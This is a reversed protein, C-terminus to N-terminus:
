SNLSYKISGCQTCGNSMSSPCVKITPTFVSSLRNSIPAGINCLWCYPWIKKEYTSLGRSKPGLSKSLFALPHGEQMLVAGIGGDSADTEVIFPKAFNSLDLVPAAILAHKLTEFAVSHETTWVFATHKKLLNTLPRSIIDFHKV